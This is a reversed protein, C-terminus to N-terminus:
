RAQTTSSASGCRRMSTAASTTRTCRRTHMLINQMYSFAAGGRLLQPRSHLSQPALLRTTLMCCTSDAEASMKGGAPTSVQRNTDHAYCHFACVHQCIKGIPHFSQLASTATNILKQQLSVPEGPAPPPGAPCPAAQSAEQLCLALLLSPHFCSGSLSASSSTQMVAAAASVVSPESM